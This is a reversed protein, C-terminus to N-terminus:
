AALSYPGVVTAGVLIYLDDNATDRYLPLFGDFAEANAPAGNGSAIGGWGAAYSERSVLAQGTTGTSSTTAGDRTKVVFAGPTGDGWGGEASVEAGADNDSDGTGGLLSVTGGPKDAAGAGGSATNAGGGNTDGPLINVGAGNSGSGTAAVIITGGPDNGVALVDALPPVEGGAFPSPPTLDEGAAFADAVALLEAGALHSAATTGDQGRAVKWRTRDGGLYEVIRATSSRDYGLFTLKEDDIRFGFGNDQESGTDVVIVTDSSSINADLQTM